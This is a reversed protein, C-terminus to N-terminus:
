KSPHWDFPHHTGDAQVIINGTVIGAKGAVLRNQPLREYAELAPIKEAVQLGGILYQRFGPVKGSVTFIWDGKSVCRRINPM